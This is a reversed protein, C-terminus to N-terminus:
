IKKSFNPCNLALCNGYKIWLTKVEPSETTFNKRPTPTNMFTNLYSNACKEFNLLSKADCKGSEKVLVMGNHIKIAVDSKNMSYAMTISLIAFCFFSLIFQFNKM